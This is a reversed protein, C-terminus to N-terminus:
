SRRTLTKVANQSLVRDCVATRLMKRRVLSNPQTGFQMSAQQLSTTPFFVHMQAVICYTLIRNSVCGVAELLQRNARVARCIILRVQLTRLFKKYFCGFSYVTGYRLGVTHRYTFNRLSRRVARRPSTIVHSTLGDINQLVYFRFMFPTNQFRSM